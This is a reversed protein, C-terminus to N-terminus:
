GGEPVPADFDINRVVLVRGQEIVINQTPSILDYLTTVTDIAAAIEAIRWLTDLPSKAMATGRIAASIDDRATETDVAPDLSILLDVYLPTAFGMRVDATAPAVGSYDPATGRLYLEVADMVPQTPRRDPLSNCVPMVLVTGRGLAQPYVLAGTVSPHASKAWFIYDGTRGGRAGESTVTQWEDAVRMRWAYEDEIDAGGAIGPDAVTLTNEIGPVPDILTLTQGPEMNGAAGATVCRIQVPVPDLGMAALEIVKYDLGNQGRMRTDVLLQTKWNGKALAAGEAQVAELRPVGYLSAWDPLMEIDCSLPSVQKAIWDLHGHQGHCAAAWARTLPDRLVAPMASLDAMIRKQLDNLPPRDYIKTM